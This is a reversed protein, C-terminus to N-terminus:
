IVPGWLGHRPMPTSLPARDTSSPGAGWLQCVELATGLLGQSVGWAEGWLHRMVWDEPPCFSCSRGVVGWREVQLRGFARTVEGVGVRDPLRRRRPQSLTRGHDGPTELAQASCPGLASPTDPRLPWAARPGCDGTREQWLTRGCVCVGQHRNTEM